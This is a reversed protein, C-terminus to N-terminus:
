RLRFHPPEVPVVVAGPNLRLVRTLPPRQHHALRGAGRCSAAALGAVLGAGSGSRDRPGVGQGSGGDEPGTRRGQGERGVHRGVHRAGAARRFVGPCGGALRREAGSQLDSERASLEQRDALPRFIADTIGFNLTAGGGAAFANKDDLIITGDTSQDTGEHRYYDAGVNLDPLWLVQANQLRAAAEEVSAQAFAIILPRANSLYLATALNIPLVQDSAAPQALEIPPPESNEGVAPLRFIQGSGAYAPRAEPSLSAQPPPATVAEPPDPANPPAALGGVSSIALLIVTQSALIARLMKTM